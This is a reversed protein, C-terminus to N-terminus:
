FIFKLEISWNSEHEHPIIVIQQIFERFYFRREAESLDLWFQPLSVAQAIAQLNDPPLQAMNIELQAIETRLKYTRLAVTEQDLIGQEELDLLQQLIAQQKLIKQEGSKKIASDPPLELQAVALPLELCIKTITQTLVQAYAIAKCKPKKPCQPCRLYLYETQKHHQTVRTINM